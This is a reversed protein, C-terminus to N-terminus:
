ATTGPTSPVVGLQRLIHLNDVIGRQRAVRADRFTLIAVEEWVLHQGSPPIPGWAGRQTGSSRMHVVATDGEVVLELLEEHYDPFTAHAAAVMARVGDHGQRYSYPRYDAVFDTAYLEDLHSLEAANWVEDFLRRVTARILESVDIGGM